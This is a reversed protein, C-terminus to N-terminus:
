HLAAHHEGQNVESRRGQTVPRVMQMRSFKGQAMDLRCATRRLTDSFPWGLEDDFQGPRLARACRLSPTPWCSVCNMLCGPGSCESPMWCWSSPWITGYAPLKRFLDPCNSGSHDPKHPITPVCRGELATHVAFVRCQRSEAASAQDINLSSQGVEGDCCPIFRSRGSRALSRSAESADDCQIKKPLFNCARRKGELRNSSLECKQVVGVPSWVIMGVPNAGRPSPEEVAGAFFVRCFAM